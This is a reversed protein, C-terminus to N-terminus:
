ACQRQYGLKLDPALEAAFRDRRDIATPQISPKRAAAVAITINDADDVLHAPTINGRANL